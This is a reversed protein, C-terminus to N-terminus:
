QRKSTMRSVIYTCVNCGTVNCATEFMDLVPNIGLALAVIFTVQDTPLGMAELVMFLLFVSGGPIGGAGISAFMISICLTGIQFLSLDHGFMNAALIVFVPLHVCVGDMNVTAGMPLSFSSLKRDIGVKDCALFSMPLTAASSRTVFATLMPQRFAALVRYPNERCFIAIALPYVVMVMLFVCVIVCMTIKAYPGFLLVGNRAFNSFSLAFIGYPFYAVICDIIKFSIQQAGDCFDIVMQINKKTRDETKASDLLYRACLGFFIAFVIIPLFKGDSLAAFPNEFLGILFDGLSKGQSTSTMAEVGSANGAAIRDAGTSMSPNMLFAMAVGFVTAFLSTAAYWLTVLLGVRGSSGLPMSAAGYMLSFLIIPYVVMKLMAVLVDGFPAVWGIITSSTEPSAVQATLLGAATGVIFGLLIKVILPIKM